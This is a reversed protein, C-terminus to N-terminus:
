MIPFAEFSTRAIESLVRYIEFSTFATFAELPRRLLNNADTARIAREAGQKLKSTDPFAYENTTQM